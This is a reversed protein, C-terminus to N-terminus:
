KLCEIVRIGQMQFSIVVEYHRLLRADNDVVLIRADGVRAIISWMCEVAM